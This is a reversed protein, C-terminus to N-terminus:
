PSYTKAVLDLRGALALVHAQLDVNGARYPAPRGVHAPPREQRILELRLERMTKDQEKLKDELNRYSDLFAQLKQRQDDNLQSLDLQLEAAFTALDMGRGGNQLNRMAAIRVSAQDDAPVAVISVEALIGKEVITVPGEV